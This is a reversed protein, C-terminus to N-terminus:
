IEPVTRSSIAAASNISLTILLYDKDELPLPPVIM